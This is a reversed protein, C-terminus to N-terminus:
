LAAEGASAQEPRQQGLGVLSGVADAKRGELKIESWLLWSSGPPVCNSVLHQVPMIFITGLRGQPLLNLLLLLCLKM